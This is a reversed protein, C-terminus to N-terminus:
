QRHDATKMRAEEIKLISLWAQKPPFDMLKSM